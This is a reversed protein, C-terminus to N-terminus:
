RGLRRYEEPTVGYRCKFLRGFYGCDQYGVSEAVTGIPLKTERLLQCARNLRVRRLFSLVTIGTHKKFLDCLYTETLFFLESLKKLTIEGAYNKALYYQLEAVTENDAYHFGDRESVFQREREEASGEGATESALLGALERAMAEVRDRELPKLLYQYAHYNIAERAVDFDSYGSTIVVTTPLGAKRLRGILEIGSFDPMRIDTVLVEPKWYQVAELADEGCQCCQCIQFGLEEWDIITRLGELAWPEDDVLVVKLM